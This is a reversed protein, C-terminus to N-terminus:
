PPPGPRAGHVTAHAAHPVIAGMAREDREPERAAAGSGESGNTSFITSMSTEASISPGVELVRVRDDVGPGQGVRAVAELGHLAADQELHRLHAQAGVARVHLRRADDAVDHALEVRVAVRRDVVRQDAERLVERQAQREHVPM